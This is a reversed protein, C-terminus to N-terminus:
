FNRVLMHKTIWNAGIKTGGARFDPCNFPTKCRRLRQLVGKSPLFIKIVVQEHVRVPTLLQEILSVIHYNTPVPTKQTLNQM